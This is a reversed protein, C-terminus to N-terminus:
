GGLDVFVGGNQEALQQMFDKQFEGLAITHIVVKRLDNAARVERLIDQPDVFAGHSPRGDSLFFITDVDVEWDDGRGAPAGGRLAWMLAEYSNTKGAGLNASGVLGVEALDQSSSGGIAELHDVWDVANSKNVVNAPVLKQKWADVETAFALVNFRVHKELREITRILETKVIDIRAFSPYDGGEFRARDVVLNEMSGSVDIVFVISRSPTDIGHYKVADDTPEYVQESAALNERMRALEEDTPIVFRDGYTEWFGKWGDLRTGFNRGTIEALAAGIDVDLRGEEEEMRAILPGISRVDRVRGLAAVASARVQWVDHDLNRLAPEVVLPSDLSALGELAACRVADQKDDCLPAIARAAAEVAALAGAGRGVSEVAADGGPARDPGKATDGAGQPGGAGQSGQAGAEVPRAPGPERLAAVAALAKVARRRVEWSRDELCELLVEETGPYAASEIARLIGTRLEDGRKKELAEALALVSPRPPRDAPFSALVRVAARVVESDDDDLLPVLADVVAPSDVGDLTLIAEVRTASEEFKRFEKRFDEVREDDAPAGPSAPPRAGAPGSLGSATPLLALLALLASKLPVPLSM